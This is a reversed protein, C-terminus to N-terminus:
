RLKLEVRRNRKWGAPTNRPDILQDFGFGAASLRSASVGAEVLVDRVSAARKQSLKLNHARTGRQDAHGAVAISVPGTQDRALTAGFELLAKKAKPKLEASNTEFLIDGLAVVGASRLRSKDIGSIAPTEDHDQRSSGERSPLALQIGVMALYVQRNSITFDTSVSSWPRLPIGKPGFEYVAKLGAFGSAIKSGVTPGYATDTGFMFSVAPGISWRRGLRYRPNGEIVAARTHIKLSRGWGDAGEVSNYLWSLGADAVWRMSQFSLAMGLTYHPGVPSESYEGARALGVGAGIGAYFRPGTFDEPRILPRARTECAASFSAKPESKLDGALARQLLSGSVRPHLHAAVILPLTRHEAINAQLRPNRSIV